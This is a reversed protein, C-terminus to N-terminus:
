MVKGAFKGSFKVPLSLFPGKFLTGRTSQFVTKKPLRSWKIKNGKPLLCTATDSGTKNWLNDPLRAVSYSYAFRNINWKEFYCFTYLTCFNMQLIRERRIKEVCQLSTATCLARPVHRELTAFRHFLQARSAANRETMRRKEAERSNWLKNRQTPWAAISRLHPRICHAKRRQFDKALSLIIRFIVCYM